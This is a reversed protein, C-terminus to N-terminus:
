LEESILRVKIAIFGSEDLCFACVAMLSADNECDLGRIV